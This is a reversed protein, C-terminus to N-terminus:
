ITDIVIHPVNAHRILDLRTEEKETLSLMFGEVQKELMTKTVEIAKSPNWETEAYLIQFGFENGIQTAVKSMIHYIYNNIDNVIFGITKTRGGRLNQAVSNRVYRLEHAIKLVKERTAQSIRSGPQFSLSVTTESVGALNAIDKITVNKM